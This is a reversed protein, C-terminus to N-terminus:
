QLSFDRVKWNSRDDSVTQLQFLHEGGPTRVFGRVSGTTVGNASDSTIYFVAVSKVGGWSKVQNTAAMLRDPGVNALCESQAKASDASNLDDIFHHAVTRGPGSIESILKFYAIWGLINLVGLIVGAIALRRGRMNLENAQRIGIVGLAVAALGAFFPVILFIGCALSAIAAISWTSSVSEAGAAPEDAVALSSNEAAAPTLEAM